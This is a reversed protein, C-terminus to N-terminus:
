EDVKCTIYCLGDFDRCAFIYISDIKKVYEYM